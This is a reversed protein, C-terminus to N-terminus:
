NNVFYVLEEEPKAASKFKMQKFLVGEMEHIASFGKECKATLEIWQGVAPMPDTHSTIFGIGRIDDACCTMANRGFIYKGPGLQEYQVAQGKLRVIKGDYRDPHELADLYFTGFQDDAIRIIDAKVDYPLDEDAVGDDSTGDTNEFIVQCQPNMGKIQRRINSKPTAETCRNVIVLDANMPGDTMFNRMNTMYTDYTTSDILAVLQALTWREPIEQNFLHDLMWTANYEMLVIEPKYENQLRVLAGDDMDEPEELHVIVCNHEKLFEPELEEVGEECSIILTREDPNGFSESQLMERMLYTKGSELFGTIVYVPVLENQM